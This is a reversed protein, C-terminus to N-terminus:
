AAFGLKPLREPFCSLIARAVKQRNEADEARRQGSVARGQAFDAQSDEGSWLSSLAAHVAGYGLIRQEDYGLKQSFIAALHVARGEQQVINQMPVPNCFINAVEYAPEGMLGKPDIALWGREEEAYLINEHHLDGHLPIDDLTQTALLYQALDAAHTFVNALGSERDQAARAFLPAFREKLSVLGKPIEIKRPAHLKLVTEAIIDNAEDDSIPRGSVVGYEMAHLLDGGGAYEILSHGDSDSEYLEVTGQGGYYKLLPAGLREDILGHENLIKLVAPKGNNATVRWLKSCGSPSPPMIDQDRLDWLSFHPHHTM